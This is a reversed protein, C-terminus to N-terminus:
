VVYPGRRRYVGLSGERGLMAIGMEEADGTRASLNECQWTQKDLKGFACTVWHAALDGGAGKVVGRSELDVDGGFCDMHSTSMDLVCIRVCNRGAEMLICKGRGSTKGANTM